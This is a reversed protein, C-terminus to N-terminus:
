GMNDLQEPSPVGTLQEHFGAGWPIAWTEALKGDRVRNFMMEEVAVRKGTPALGLYPGTHTATVTCHCAVLDDDAVIRHIETRKDPFAIRHLEMTRREDDITARGGAPDFEVWDETLCAAFAEIDGVDYAAWARRLLQINEESV